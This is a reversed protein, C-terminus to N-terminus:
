KDLLRFLPLAESPIGHRLTTNPTFPPSAERFKTDAFIGNVIRTNIADHSNSINDHSGGDLQEV